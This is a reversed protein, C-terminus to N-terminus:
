RTKSLLHKKAAAKKAAAKKAAAKKAAAKKAAAKKAAAKKAAAKKAAAKKAAAKKAAAKKAAAKKAAAKKAAAKKAAAKKAAAKKAAAKKAAAKKAAAKKAAAKKAAAKKAAAKKAAAKKASEVRRKFDMPKKHLHEETFDPKTSPSTGIISPEKPIGRGLLPIWKKSVDIIWEKQQIVWTNHFPIPRFGGSVSNSEIHIHPESSNGSNGILGIFQGAKVSSGKRLYKPISDKQFHAYRINENGHTIEIFNGSAPYPTPYPLKGATNNDDMTNLLDKVIGDAMAYVKKGWFLYDGNKELSGNQTDELPSWHGSSNIGMAVIDHAFVQGGIPEGDNAHNSSSIFYGLGKLDITNVPFQYSGKPTPSKHPTLEFTKKSAFRYRRCYVSVSIKKPWPWDMFIRNDKWIQGTGPWRYMQRNTWYTPKGPKLIIKDLGFGKDQMIKTPHESDPFSFEIARVILSYKENNTIALRLVLKMSGNKNLTNPTLPLFTAKGSTMPEVDITLNPRLQNVENGPKPKKKDHNQNSTIGGPKGTNTKLGIKTLTSRSSSKKILQGSM